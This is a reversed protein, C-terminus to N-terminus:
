IGTKPVKRDMLGAVAQGTGAGILSGGAKTVLPATIKYTGSPLFTVDGAAANITAQIAATDDTTGDGVAGYAKVDFWTGGKLHLNTPTLLDSAAGTLANVISDHDAAAITQGPVVQAM